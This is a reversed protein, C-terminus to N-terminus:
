PYKSTTGKSAPAALASSVQGLGLACKVMEAMQRGLYILYYAELYADNEHNGKFSLQANRDFKQAWLDPTFSRQVNKAFVSGYSYLMTSIKLSYVESAVEQFQYHMPLNMTKAFQKVEDATPPVIQKMLEKASERASNALREQAIGQAPFYGLFHIKEKVLIQLNKLAADANGKGMEKAWIRIEELLRHAGTGSYVADVFLVPQNSYAISLPDLKNATLHERLGSIEDTSPRSKSGWSFPIESLEVTGSDASLSMGQLFAHIAAPSRGIFVIRSHSKGLTLLPGALQVLEQQGEATAHFSASTFYPTKLFDPKNLRGFRAQYADHDEESLELFSSKPPAGFAGNQAIAHRSAVSIMFFILLHLHKMHKM